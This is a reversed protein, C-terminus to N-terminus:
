SGELAGSGDLANDPTGSGESVGSACACAPTGSGALGDSASGPDALKDYAGNHTHTEVVRKNPPLFANTKRQPEQSNPPERSRRQNRHHHRVTRRHRIRMMSNTPWSSNTQHHRWTTSCSPCSSRSNKQCHHRQHNATWSLSTQCHRCRPSAMWSSNTQCCRRQPSTTWSWSMSNTRRAM